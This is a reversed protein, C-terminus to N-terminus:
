FLSMQGRELPRAIPRGAMFAQVESSVLLDSFRIARKLVIGNLTRGRSLAVYLMGEAFVRYGLDLIYEDLSAGQSRHITIAAALKLPIQSFEGTVKKRLRKTKADHEYSISQWTATEVEYIQGNAEVELRPTVRKVIGTTGNVYSGEAHNRIFMVAAGPKLTLHEDTPADWLKFEGTCLSEFTRAPAALATLMRQNAADADKNTTTLAIWPHEDPAKFSPNLRSNFLKLYDPKHIAAGSRIANLAETFVPDKQRFITTLNITRLGTERWVSAHFFFPTQTGYKQELWNALNENKGDVVPPLQYPDGVLIIRCGGFSLNPNRGNKRMFLDIADIIDARAMSAEDILITDISTYKDRDNRSVVHIDGEDLQHAGFRFFKHITEGNVLLAARGTPALVACVGDYHEIFYRVLESKGVGAEGTIFLHGSNPNNLLELATSWEPTIILETNAM